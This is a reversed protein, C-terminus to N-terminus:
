PGYDVSTMQKKRLEDIILSGYTSLLIIKKLVLAILVMKDNRAYWLDTRTQRSLLPLNLGLGVDHRNDHDDNTAARCDLNYM